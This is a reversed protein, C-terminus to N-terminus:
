TEHLSRKRRWVERLLLDLLELDQLLLVLKVTILLQLELLLNFAHPVVLLELQAHLLGLHLLGVIAVLGHLVVAEPGVFLFVLM